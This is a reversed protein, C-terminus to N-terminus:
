NWFWASCLCSDTTRNERVEYPYPPQSGLRHWEFLENGGTDSRFQRVSDCMLTLGVIYRATQRIHLSVSTGTTGGHSVFDAM